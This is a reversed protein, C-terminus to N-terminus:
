QNTGSPPMMTYGQQEFFTKEDYAVIQRTIKGNAFYIITLGWNNYSKGTPPMEGPGTNTGALVWRYALSNESYIENDISLKLDPYATRLGSIVKKFGDIGKVDPMKNVTRVFSPDIISDLSDLNGDNWVEVLKDAIPKLEQSPDRKQQQCGTSVVFTIVLFLSGAKLLTQILQKM